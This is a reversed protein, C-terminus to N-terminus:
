GGAEYRISRSSAEVAALAPGAVPETGVVTVEIALDGARYVAYLGARGPATYGGQRGPLGTATRVEADAATVRYGPNATIRRRLAAAADELSGRFPQLTIAYRLGAVVLVLTGRRGGPRSRTLDLEAGAPPVVTVGAGVPYPRDPPVPREAPLARDAAPLGFALGVLTGVMILTALLNILRARTLLPRRGTLRGPAVSM